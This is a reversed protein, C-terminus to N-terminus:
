PQQNPRKTVKHAPRYPIHTNSNSSISYSYQQAPILRNQELLIEGLLLHGPIYKPSTEAAQSATVLAKSVQGSEFQQRALDINIKARAQGWRQMAAQKDTVQQNRCGFLCFIVAFAIPLLRKM